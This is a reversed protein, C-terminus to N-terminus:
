NANTSLPGHSLDLFPQPLFREIGDSTGHQVNDVGVRAPDAAIALPDFDPEGLDVRGLHCVRARTVALGSLGLFSNFYKM